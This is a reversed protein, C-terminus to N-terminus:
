GRWPPVWERPWSGGAKQVWSPTGSLWPHGQVEPGRSDWLGTCGRGAEGPGEWLFWPERQGQWGGKPVTLSLSDLM